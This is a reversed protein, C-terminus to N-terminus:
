NVLNNYYYDLSYRRMIPFLMAIITYCVSAGLQTLITIINRHSSRRVGRNNGGLTAQVPLSLVLLTLCEAGGIVQAQLTGTSRGPHAARGNCAGRYVQGALVRHRLGAAAAGCPTLTPMKPM